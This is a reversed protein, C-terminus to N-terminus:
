DGHLDLPYPLQLKQNELDLLPGNDHAPFLLADVSYRGPGILLIVITAILYFSSAEWSHGAPNVFPEGREILKATAVVMTGAILGSGLPTLFGTILLIAAILQGYAAVAAFAIPVGFEQSFAELEGTKGSGHFLFATGVFLRLLLPAIGARGRPFTPFVAAKLAAVSFVRDSM